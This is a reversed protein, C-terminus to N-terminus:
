RADELEHTGSTDAVPNSMLIHKMQDEQLEHFRATQTHYGAADTQVSADPDAHTAEAGM